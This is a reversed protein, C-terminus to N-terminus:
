SLTKYVEVLVDHMFFASGRGKGLFRVNKLSESVFNLQNTSTRVFEHTPVPFGGTLLESKRYLTRADRPIAHMDGLEKIVRKELRELDPQELTNVEVTLHYESLGQGSQFNSYLTVRSTAFEPDHCQIYQVDTLFNRDFSLHFLSTVLRSPPGSQTEYQLGAARMCHFTPITWVLEDCNLRTSDSLTLSRINGTEHEIKQVFQGTRVKVGLKSLTTQLDIIWSGVGGERPYFSGEGSGGESSSHFALIRDLSASKKLERVKKSDSAIIRSLGFLWHSDPTLDSLEKGYFKDRLIPTFLEDTFVSGFLHRLQEDLNQFDVRHDEPRPMALLEEFGKQYVDEPLRRADLFPTDSNLEGRYFGGGKLNHLTFWKKEDLVNGPTDYLIADLESIGTRRLFHSGQDFSQGRENTFSKLLGGLQSDLEILDVEDYKRKLLIASLIGAIGGGVVIARM